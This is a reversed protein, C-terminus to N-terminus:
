MYSSVRFIELIAVLKVLFRNTKSAIGTKNGVTWLKPVGPLAESCQNNNTTTRNCYATQYCAEIGVTEFIASTKEHCIWFQIINSELHMNLCDFAKFIEKM